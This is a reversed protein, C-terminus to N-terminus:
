KHVVKMRLIEMLFHKQSTKKHNKKTKLEKVDEMYVVNWQM